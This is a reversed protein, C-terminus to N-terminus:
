KEDGFEKWMEEESIWGEEAASDLGKQLEIMLLAKAQEKIASKTDTTVLLPLGQVNLTQQIFINFADTMTMGVKAYIDEVNKKIEPNIRMQFTATKPATAVSLFESM